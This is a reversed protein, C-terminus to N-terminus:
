ANETIQENRTLFTQKPISDIKLILNIKGNLQKIGEYIWSILMKDTTYNIFMILIKYLKKKM